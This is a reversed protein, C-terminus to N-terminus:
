ASIARNPQVLRCAQTRWSGDHQRQLGYYAVWVAGALDIIRVPQVAEGSMVVLELFSVRAARHVARDCADREDLAAAAGPILMGLALLLTKHM